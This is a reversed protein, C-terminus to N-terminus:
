DQPGKWEAKKHLIPRKLNDETHGELQFYTLVNKLTERKYALNNYLFTYM